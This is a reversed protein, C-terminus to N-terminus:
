IEWAHDLAHWASRRVAYRLTWLPARQPVRPAPEGRARSALLALTDRRVADMEAAVARAGERKESTAGLKYLYGAEAELVHRVMADVARGGGRPGKRLPKGAARKASRDFARWCARLIAAQREAEQATLPRGDFAPAVGPAGFDT